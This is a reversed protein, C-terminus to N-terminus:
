KPREEDLTSQRDEAFEVAPRFTWGGAETTGSKRPRDKALTVLETLEDGYEPAVDFLEVFQAVGPIKRGRFRFFRQTGEPSIAVVPISDDGERNDTDADAPMFEPSFVRHATRAEHSMAVLCRDLPVHTWRPHAIVNMDRLVSIINKLVGIQRLARVLSEPSESSRLTGLDPRRLAWVHVSNVARAAPTCLLENLLSAMIEIQSDPDEMRVAGDRSVVVVSYGAEGLQRYLARPGLGLVRRCRVEVGPESYMQSVAREVCQDILETSLGAIPTADPLKTLREGAVRSPAKWNKLAVDLFARAIERPIKQLYREDTGRKKKGRGFMAQYHNRDFDKARARAKVASALEDDTIHGSRGDRGAGKRWADQVIWLFAGPEVDAEEPLRGGSAALVQLAKFLSEEERSLVQSAV